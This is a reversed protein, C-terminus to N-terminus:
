VTKDNIHQVVSAISKSWANIMRDPMIFLTYKTIFTKLSKDPPIYDNWETLSLYKYYEKKQPNIFRYHWPKISGVYHLICPQTKRNFSVTKRILEWLSRMYRFSNWMEPLEKWRNFLVANLADQDHNLLKEDNSRIFEFVKNSIDDARWKKLNMVLVGSNFYASGAPLGLTECQSNGIDRAAMLHCESVDKAWLTRIDGKVIIDCDLYLAKYINQPLLDPIAIRYYTSQTFYNSVPFKQETLYSPAIFGVEAGYIEAQRNIKAKNKDSIGGDIIFVLIDNGSSTNELLSTLAVGLHQAYNDDSAFVVVIKEM